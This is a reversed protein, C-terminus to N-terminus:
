MEAQGQRGEDGINCFRIKPVSLGLNALAGAIRDYGWDRNEEAMRVILQELARDPKHSIEVSASGLQPRAGQQRPLPVTVEPV